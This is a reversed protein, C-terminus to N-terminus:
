LSRDDGAGAHRVVADFGRDPRRSKRNLEQTHFHPDVLVTRAICETASRVLPQVAANKQQASMIVSGDPEIPGIAVTAVLTAAALSALIM